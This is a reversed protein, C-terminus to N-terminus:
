RPSAVIRFDPFVQEPLDTVVLSDVQAWPNVHRLGAALQDLQTTTGTALVRVQGSPLNTVTGTVRLRQALQCTGWRFGVGQVVGSVLYRHTPM